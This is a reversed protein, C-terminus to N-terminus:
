LFEALPRDALGPPSLARLVREGVAPWTFFQSRTQARRSLREATAPDALELMAAALADDDRPHVVRGADGILEGSGGETSGISPVGAANAESFVIGSPEHHSPLVFCTAREFLEDLRRRDAPDHMSLWGHTVVGPAEIPPHMGAVDLRADPVEARVRAFARLVAPGNKREWDKGVFLYRPSSWDRPVPKPDHNRGGGVMFVKAPDIGYDEVISRGAWRTVVCCAVAREFATRQLEIRDRLARSSLIRVGPYDARAAQVVTMDDHTVFRVGDPLTYSSGVQVYGDLDDGARVRRTAAWTQIRGMLPGNYAAVRGARLSRARVAHVANAATVANLVIRDFPPQPEARLHHVDAGAAALGGALSHPVGSRVGPLRGDGPFM